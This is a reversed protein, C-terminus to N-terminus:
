RSWSLRADGFLQSQSGSIQASIPTGVVLGSPLVAGSRHLCRNARATPLGLLPVRCLTASFGPGTLPVTGVGPLSAKLSGVWTVPTGVEKAYKATGPIPQPLAVTATVPNAKPPDVLLSGDDGFVFAARAIRLGERREYISAVALSGLLTELEELEPGLDFGIAELRVPWRGSRDIAVLFNLRAGGLLNGDSGGGDAGRRSGRKCVRRYTRQVEGRARHTRLRTFGREGRFAITGRFTGVEREPRKGRCDPHPLKLGPLTIDLGPILPFPRRRGEFRVSIRGLAGFDAEIRNRSVSGTTRYIALREGDSLQLVVQRHGHAELVLRYDNTAAAEVTLRLSRKKVLYGPKAAAGAPLGLLLAAAMIAAVGGLRGSANMAASYEFSM